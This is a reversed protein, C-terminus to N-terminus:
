DQPRDEDQESREEEVFQVRAHISKADFWQQYVATRNQQQLVNALMPRMEDYTKADAPTKALFQVVYQTRGTKDAILSTTLTGSPQTTPQSWFTKFCEDAFEASNGAVGDIFPGMPQGTYGIIRRSFEDVKVDKKTQALL